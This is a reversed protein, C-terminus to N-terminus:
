SRGSPAPDTSLVRLHAELAETTAAPHPSANM